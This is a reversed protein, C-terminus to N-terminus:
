VRGLDLYPMLSIYLIFLIIILLAIFQVPKNIVSQFFTELEGNEKKQQLEQRVRQSRELQYDDILQKARDYQADDKVWLGHVSIQWNGPPSEYFDIKNESLLLKVDGAEDPFVSNLKFILKAM